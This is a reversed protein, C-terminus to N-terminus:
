DKFIGRLYEARAIDREIENLERGKILQLNGPQIDMMIQYLTLDPKPADLIKMMYGMRISSLHEMAEKGSLSRAYRLTGFSRYIRDATSIRRESLAKEQFRTESEIVQSTIRKLSSIIDEESKGMTIQNSIQFIHGMPESGEGYIGRITMGFKSVATLVSKFQGTRELMPLHVMFSARLGTGTNTPCSTLYGYDKDFAYETNEELLDDVKNATDWVSDIDDGACIAQIRIHDEENIMISIKEDRQMLLGKPKTIKLFEPSIIHRELLFRKEADSKQDFAIFEFHNSLRDTTERIMMKSQEPTIRSLFPYKKINRALRVRSSIIPTEDAKAESHWTKM